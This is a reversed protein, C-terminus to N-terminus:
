KIAQAVAALKATLTQNTKNERAIYAELEAIRAELSTKEDAWEAREDALVQEVEALKKVHEASTKGLIDGLDAVDVPENSNPLHGELKDDEMVSRQVCRTAGAFAGTEPDVDIIIQRTKSVIPM